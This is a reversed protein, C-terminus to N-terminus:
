IHYHIHFCKIFELTSQLYLIHNNKHYMQIDYWPYSPYWPYKSIMHSFSLNKGEIRLIQNRAEYLLLWPLNILISKLYLVRQILNKRNQVLSTEDPFSLEHNSVTTLLATKRFLVPNLLHGSTFSRSVM